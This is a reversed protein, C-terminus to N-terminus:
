PVDRSEPQLGGELCPENITPPILRPQPSPNYYVLLKEDQGNFHITHESILTVQRARVPSLLRPLSGHRTFAHIYDAHARWLRADPRDAAGIPCRRRFSVLQEYIYAERLTYPLAGAAFTWVRPPRNRKLTSWHAKVDAANREMAPIYDTTYGAMGQRDYEGFTGLGQLSRRHLADAQLVHVALILAATAAAVFPGRVFSPRPAAADDAVRALLALSVAAAGIYPIFHRFAFMMHVTAMTAGYAVVMFLGLHLGWRRRIEALAAYVPRELSMIQVIAYAAMIGVGTIVMHEAMYRVNTLLVDRAATPTKVYFSTPMVTDFAYWAYLFWFTPLVAALGAAFVRDRWARVQLMAALLVPGAFLVADYRTVVAAGALCGVLLLSRRDIHPRTSLAAMGAVIAALLPTELGAFTWMILSPAVIVATLPMTEQRGPGCSRVMLLSVTALVIVALGKYTPLPDSAVVSLGALVVGQLPSTMASIPEGPNFVWQGLDRANVAYRAVIYADDATFPAFLFSTVAAFVGTVGYVVLPLRHSVM